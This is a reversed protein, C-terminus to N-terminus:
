QERRGALAQEFIPDVNLISLNKRNQYEGFPFPLQLILYLFFAHLFHRSIYIGFHGLTIVLAIPNGGLIM